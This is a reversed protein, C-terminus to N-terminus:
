CCGNKKREKDQKNKKKPLIINKDKNNNIEKLNQFSLYELYLVKAADIFINKANFGTKASTEYFLAFNNDLAYQKGKDFSIVRKDELDNKNGILFIKINPNSIQKLDKVWSDINNFSSINDISYVVISLSSNKYFSSIISQYKEQGCTDWIQLSININNISINFIFFEFAITAQYYNQFTDKTARLSLCSKGVGCDGIVVIKFSLNINAYEQPLLVYNLNEM